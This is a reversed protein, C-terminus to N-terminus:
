DYRNVAKTAEKFPLFISGGVDGAMIRKYADSEYPLEDEPESEDSEWDDDWPTDAKGSARSFCTALKQDKYTGSDPAYVGRVTWVIDPLDSRVLSSTFERGILKRDKSTVRKKGM